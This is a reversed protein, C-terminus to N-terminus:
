KEEAYDEGSPVRVIRDSAVEMACANYAGFLNLWCILSLILIGEFLIKM